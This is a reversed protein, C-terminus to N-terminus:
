VVEPLDKEDVQYTLIEEEIGFKILYYPEIKEITSIELLRDSLESDIREVIRRAQYLNM